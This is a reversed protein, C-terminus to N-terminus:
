ARERNCVSKSVFAAVRPGVRWYQTVPRVRPAAECLRKVASRSVPQCSYPRVRLGLTTPEIGVRGVELVDQNLAISWNTKLQSPATHVLRTLSRDGSGM